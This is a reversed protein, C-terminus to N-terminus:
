LVVANTLIKIQAIKSVKAQSTLSDKTLMDTAKILVATRMPRSVVPTLIASSYCTASKINKDLIPTLSIIQPNNTSWNYCGSFATIEYQVKTCEQCTAPLNVYVESITRNTDGNSQKISSSNIISSIPHFAGPFQM